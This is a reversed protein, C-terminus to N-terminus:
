IFTALNDTVVFADAGISCQASWTVFGFLPCNSPPIGLLNIKIVAVTCLGIFKIGSFGDYDNNEARKLLLWKSHEIKKKWFYKKFNEFFDGFFGAGPWKDDAAGFDNGWENKLRIMKKKNKEKKEEFFFLVVTVTFIERIFICVGCWQRTSNSPHRGRIPRRKQHSVVFPFFTTFCFPFNTCIKQHIKSIAFTSKECSKWSKEKLFCRSFKTFISM